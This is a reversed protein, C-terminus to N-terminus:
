SRRWCCRYSSSLSRVSWTAGRGTPRAPRGARDNAARGECVMRGNRYRGIRDPLQELQTDLADRVAPQASELVGTHQADRALLSEIEDIMGPDDRCLSRLADNRREPPLDCVESFIEHLREYRQKRM